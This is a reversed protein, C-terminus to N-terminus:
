RAMSLISREGRVLERLVKWPALEHPARVTPTTARNLQAVVKGRSIRVYGREFLDDCGFRCALMVNRINRREKNSCAARRKVHAAVLFEVPYEEGCLACQGKDRGGLLLDMILRQEARGTSQRTEDLEGLESLLANQDIPPRTTTVTAASAGARIPLPGREFYKWKVVEPAFPLGFDEPTPQKENALFVPDSLVICGIEPNRGGEFLESRSAAIDSLRSLMEEYTRCGNGEAYRAWADRARMNRYELFSGWGGIRRPESGKRLFYFRDGRNLRRVNWPTPTWFNVERLQPAAPRHAGILRAVDYFLTGQTKCAFGEPQGLSRRKSVGALSFPQCPFGALLVDFPPVESETVLRIDGAQEHSTDFNAEYTQRAHRDIECAFVCKGGVAEFALRM